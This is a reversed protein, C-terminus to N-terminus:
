TFIPITYPLLIHLQHSPYTFNNKLKSGIIIVRERTQPVGYDASNLLKYQVDYGLSEFLSIITELLEGKQMSLLGKVNEFLFM